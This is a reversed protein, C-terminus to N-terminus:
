NNNHALNETSMTEKNNTQYRRYYDLAYIGVIAFSVVDVIFSLSTSGTKDAIFGQIVPTVAGGIISMVVIAGATETYRKDSITNLTQSYITPWGPGFLGSALITFYIATMSPVFTVYLLSLTGVISFLFLVKATPFKKMLATALLKGVFFAIYTYVMFTSADRENIDRSFSMALIITYAWVSTQLGMYIFETGIGKLFEKNHSLYRLTESIGVSKQQKINVSQHPKGSPFQTLAFIIIAVLLVIVIYKYPLLTQQLMKQGYVLREAGHMKAMTVELSAGDNFVLYKGLLIGVVAGIPYFIQSINLRVTSAKKPGMLTSFTNASTELFSLGCAIAFLAILFVGYTALHSAPFFLLCGITFLSLGIIIALKYSTKKIVRSAPIAIVFYGLYFASNVFASTVNNLEFITKFQTILINNLSAAAAWLPILLSLLMFQFIPTRDLYGDDLENASLKILNGLNKKM